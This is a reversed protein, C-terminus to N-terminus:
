RVWIKTNATLDGKLQLHYIGPKLDISLRYADYAEVIGFELRRGNLDFIAYETKWNKKSKSDIIIYDHLPNPYVNLEKDSLIIDPESLIYAVEFNPIGYGMTDTPTNYLHASRRIQDILEYSHKSPYAEVLCAAMGAMIPSSFSTGFGISIVGMFDSITAPSGQAMVDPKVRGDASPGWSSFSAFRGQFNVAGVTLVSDGDAPAGIHKWSSSGSNGASAVVLIGKSAALDAAKTVVTTNGDMDSYAYDNSSKDFTTYGLSTNIVHAGVSDAFEAAMAWHDMEIPREHAINESSLLWYNAHPASGVFTDPLLAAMTSLVSAGHSGNGTFVNTDSTIFNWSGKLRNSNRLSDLANAAYFGGYGADIVAITIGTGTYGRQHLKDGKLIEIQTRGFGYNFTDNTAVAALNSKHAKPFEVRDVFPLTAILEPSSHRVYCYNLWKSHALVEAGVGTLSAKYEPAIPLDSHSLSIGQLARRNIAQSSLFQEPNNILSQSSGKDKFYVRFEQLDQAQLSLSLLFAFAILKKM